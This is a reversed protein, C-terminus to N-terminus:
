SLSILIADIALISFKDRSYKLLSKLFSVPIDGCCSIILYRISLDHVNNFDVCKVIDSIELETPMVSVRYKEFSKRKM